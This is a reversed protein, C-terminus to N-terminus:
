IALALLTFFSTLLTDSKLHTLSKCHHSDRFTTGTPFLALQRENTLWEVFCITMIMMELSNTQMM